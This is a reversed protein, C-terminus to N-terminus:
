FPVLGLSFESNNDQDGERAMLTNSNSVSGDFNNDLRFWLSISRVGNGVQTSLKIYDNFGDFSFASNAKEKRDTANVPGVLDGDYENLSEDNANGNFPYYAILGNQPITAKTVTITANAEASLSNSGNDSVRITLVFNIKDNANMM